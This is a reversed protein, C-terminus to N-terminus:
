EPPPVKKSNQDSVAMGPNLSPLVAPDVETSTSDSQGPQNSSSDASPTDSVAVPASEEAPKGCATLAVFAFLLGVMTFSVRFM